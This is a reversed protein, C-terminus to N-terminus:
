VKISFHFDFDSQDPDFKKDPDHDHNFVKLSFPAIGNKMVPLASADYHAGVGL